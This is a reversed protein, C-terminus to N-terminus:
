APCRRIQQLRSDLRAVLKLTRNKTCDSNKSRRAQAATSAAEAAQRGRDRQRSALHSVLYHYKSPIETHGDDTM